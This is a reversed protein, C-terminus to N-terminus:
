FLILMGGFASAFGLVGGWSVEALTHANLQLRSSMAFGALVIMVLAPWLLETASALTAMALLIAALGSSGVAHVSIKFFLTAVLVLLSLATVMLMLKFVVPIYMKWYFMATVAAYVLTVFIFPLIRDRRNALNLNTITGTVKFFVMNLVPLIFTM